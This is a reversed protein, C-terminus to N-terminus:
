DAEVDILLNLEGCSQCRGAVALWVFDEDSEPEAGWAIAVGVQFPFMRCRCALPLVEFPPREYDNWGRWGARGHIQPDYLSFEHGCTGCSADVVEWNFNVGVFLSTEGCRCAIGMAAM